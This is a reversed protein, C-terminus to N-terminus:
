GRAGATQETRIFQNQDNNAFWGPLDPAITARDDSSAQRCTCESQPWCAVSAYDTLEALLSALTVEAPAYTATLLVLVGLVLKGLLLVPPPKM